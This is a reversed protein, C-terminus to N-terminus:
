DAEVHVRNISLHLHTVRPITEDTPLPDVGALAEDFHISGADIDAEGGIIGGYVEANSDVSVGGSGDGTTPAYIAGVFRVGAGDIDIDTEPTGYLWFQPARDDPVYVQSQTQMDFDDLIYFRAANDGRVSINAHGDLNLSQGVAIYVDGDSTDITLNQNSHMSLDGDIYLHTSGNTGITIDDSDNNFDLSNGTINDELDNDNNSSNSLTEVRNEVYSRIPPTSNISANNAIWGDVQANQHIERTDGYSINGTVLASAADLDIDGGAVINGRIEGNSEVKVNGATRITGNSANQDAYPAVSSNYSDSTGGHGSGGIELDTDSGTQFLGQAVSERDRPSILIIRVEEASHNYEAEGDTLQELYDGWALYYESQVTLAIQGSLIPNTRNAEGRVPYRLETGNDSITLTHGTSRNGDIITLPITSTPNAGQEGRYHVDPRSLMRSNNDTSQWVGGGQFAIEEGDIEYIIRGLSEDLLVQRVEGSTENEITINVNGADPEIHTEGTDSDTVEIVETNNSGTAVRNAKADVQALANEASEMNANDQSESIAVSGVLLVTAAGTITLGILLVVAIVSSQARTTDRLPEAIKPLGTPESDDSSDPGESSIPGSNPDSM